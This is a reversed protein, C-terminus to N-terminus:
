FLNLQTNTRPATPQPNRKFFHNATHRLLTKIKDALYPYRKKSIKFVRYARVCADYIKDEYGTAYSNASEELIALKTGAPAHEGTALTLELENFLKQARELKDQTLEQKSKKM